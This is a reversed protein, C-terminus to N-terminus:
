LKKGPGKTPAVKKYPLKNDTLLKRVSRQHAELTSCLEKITYAGTDIAHLRDLLSEKHPIKESYVLKRFKTYSIYGKIQPLESIEKISLNSTDVSRLSEIREMLPHNFLKRHEHDILTKSVSQKTIGLIEAVRSQTPKIGQDELQQMVQKIKTVTQSEKKKNKETEM